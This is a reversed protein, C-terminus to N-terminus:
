RVGVVVATVNDPGGRELARAILQEAISCPSGDAALVDAILGAPVYSSLGDSCLLVRDGVQLELITLDPSRGDARGDIFRTLREPMGPVDDVGFVLRGLNHDDTLREIRGARLRYARSDGVNALAATSGNQLMAVLTSGMGALAPNDRIQRRVASSAADVARGLVNVLEAPDVHKDYPLLAEIVAASAVDGAPHGGLGDAVAFLQQGVHFADENRQKVLGIHTRGAAEVSLTM